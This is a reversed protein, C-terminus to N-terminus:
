DGLCAILIRPCGSYDDLVAPEAWPPASFLARVAPAQDDGLELMIRGGAELYRGAERALLEYFNLGTKGGDLALRPDFDRVEPDLTEILATPIYPPNSVILDYRIATGLASFGDGPFWVLREAVGHREANSRATELADASIDLAHVIASPCRTAIAIALCGSGTGFDLVKPSTGRERNLKEAFTWAQEALLETEPRPVLVRRNVAMELGCFSASGLIHQLPERRGRRQVLRRAEALESETLVRNFNLYLKLRPVQLLHALLLEVQLRSSEVGRENLFDGSRQIVELVTVGWV